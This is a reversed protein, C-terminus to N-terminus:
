DRPQTSSGAPLRIFASLPRGSLQLMLHVAFVFPILAPGPIPFWGFALQLPTLWYVLQALLLGGNTGARSSAIMLVAAVALPLTDYSLLYPAGFVSCALFLAALTLPDADRHVRYAWFVTAAAFASFCGQVAMAATYSAGAAHLNMFITPMFPAGISLPDKLTLNQVPVGKTVFDVWSQLGFLATTLAAIALATATAAFFVRWRGSAILMVPFLIGLTPKLTLCGILIGAIIPRRDLNLFIGAMIATTVFSSQGSILCFFAAPALLFTILLRRDGVLRSGAFLFVALGAATWTLLAPLYGLWGFPAGLLMVSPPYSWNLGLTKYGLIAALERNYTEFDYFRSPDPTFAARGYMWLNLFDRGVVHGTADRPIPSIWSLTLAYAVGSALFFAAALLTIKRLVDLNEQPLKRPGPM